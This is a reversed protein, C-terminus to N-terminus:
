VQPAAGCLHFSRPICRCDNRWRGPVPANGEAAELKGYLFGIGTPGCMKHGSAVFWDCDMAKLDLPMHPTSQCGDILVKAGYSHALIEIIEAVPNICGLTNSVHNVAV